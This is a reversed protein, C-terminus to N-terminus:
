PLQEIVFSGSWGGKSNYSYAEWFVHPMGYLGSVPSPDPDIDSGFITIDVQSCINLNSTSEGLAWYDTNLNQPRSAGDWFGIFSFGSFSPLAPDPIPPSCIIRLRVAESKPLPNNAIYTQYNFGIGLYAGNAGATALSPTGVAGYSPDIFITRSDISDFSPIEYWNIKNKLLPTAAM